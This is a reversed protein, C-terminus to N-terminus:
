EAQGGQEKPYLETFVRRVREEDEKGYVGIWGAAMYEDSYRRWIDVIEQVTFSALIDPFWAKMDQASHRDREAQERLHKEIHAHEQEDSM